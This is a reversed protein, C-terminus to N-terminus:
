KYLYYLFLGIFVILFGTRKESMIIMLTTLISFLIIERKSCFYLILGLFSITFYIPGIVGGYMGDGYLHIRINNLLLVMCVVTGSILIPRFISPIEKRQAYLYFVLFTLPWTYGDRILVGAGYLTTFLSIITEYLLYAFVLLAFYDFKQKKLLHILIYFVDLIFIIYLCLKQLVYWTNLLNTQWYMIKSIAFLFMLCFQVVILYYYLDRHM